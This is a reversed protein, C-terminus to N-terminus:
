VCQWLFKARSGDDSLFAYGIGSDGFNVWFPVQTADLQLILKRFDPGPFEDGQLFGPTGGIKNGGISEYYAHRVEDNRKRREEECVFEPDEIDDCRVEFECSEAALKQQGSRAVMRYLTPGVPIAQTPVENRGPQIIVANEGGEPDWTEDVFEEEDTMFIYAMQGTIDGFIKRDLEVQCIFRMPNGTERSIPWQPELVWNPQGGFKTVLECVPTAAEIFEIAKRTNM